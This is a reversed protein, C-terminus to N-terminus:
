WELNKSTESIDTVTMRSTEYQPEFFIGVSVPAGGIACVKTNDMVVRPTNMFLRIKVVISM